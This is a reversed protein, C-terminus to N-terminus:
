LEEVTVRVRKDSWYYGLYHNLWGWGHEPGGEGTITDEFETRMTEVEVFWDDMACQLATVSRDWTGNGRRHQIERSVVRYPHDIASNPYAFNGALMHDLAEAFTIQKLKV